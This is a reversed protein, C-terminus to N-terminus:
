RMAIRQNPYDIIVEYNSLFSIGLIGNRLSKGRASVASLDLVILDQQGQRSNGVRVEEVSTTLAQTTGNLGKVLPGSESLILGLAKAASPTLITAPSGTDLVLHIPKQGNISTPVGILHTNDVYIFDIWDMSELDYEDSNSLKLTKTAFNLAMTYKKLTSYGINGRIRESAPGLFSDLDFVIVDENINDVAGIKLNQLTAVEYQQGIADWENKREDRTEIGLTKVFRQSLTTATAGTDLTFRYPGNDNVFVPVDIHRSGPQIEFQVTM